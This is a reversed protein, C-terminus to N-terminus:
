FIRVLQMNSTRSMKLEDRSTPRLTLKLCQRVDAVNCRTTISWSSRLGGLAVILVLYLAPFTSSLLCLVALPQVSVSLMGKVGAASWLGVNIMTHRGDSFSAHARMYWTTNKGRLRANLERECVWVCMYVHPPPVSLCPSTIHVHACYPPYRPTFLLILVLLQFASSTFFQIQSHLTHRNQLLM